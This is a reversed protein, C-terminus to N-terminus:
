SKGLGTGDSSNGHGKGNQNNNNQRHVIVPLNTWQNVKTLEM